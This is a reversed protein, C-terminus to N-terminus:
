TANPRDHHYACWEELSVNTTPEFIAPISKLIVDDTMQAIELPSFPEAIVEAESDHMSVRISGLCHGYIVTISLSGTLLGIDASPSEVILRICPSVSDVVSFTDIGSCMTDYLGAFRQLLNHPVVVSFANRPPFTTCDMHYAPVLYSSWALTLQDLGPIPNDSTSRLAEIITRLARHDDDGASSLTCLQNDVACLPFTFLGPELKANRDVTVATRNSCKACVFNFETWKSSSIVALNRKVDRIYWPGSSMAFGLLNVTALRAQEDHIRFTRTYPVTETGAIQIASLRPTDVTWRSSIKFVDHTIVKSAEANLAAFKIPIREYTGRKYATLSVGDVTFLTSRSGNIIIDSLDVPVMIAQNAAVDKTILHSLTYTKHAFAM